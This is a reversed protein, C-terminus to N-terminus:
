DSRGHWLSFSALTLIIFIVTIGFLVQWGPGGHPFLTKSLTELSSDLLLLATTLNVARRQSMRRM